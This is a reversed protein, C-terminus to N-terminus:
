VTRPAHAHAPQHELRRPPEHAAVEHLSREEVAHGAQEHRRGGGEVDRQAPGLDPLPLSDPGCALSGCVKVLGRVPLVNHSLITTSAIAGSIPAFSGSGLTIGIFSIAAIAPDGEPDTIPVFLTPTLNVHRSAKLRLTDLHSPIAGTSDNITAVGGVIVPEDPFDALRILLTGKWNLQRASAVGAVSLVLLGATLLVFLRRLLPVEKNRAPGGVRPPIAGPLSM